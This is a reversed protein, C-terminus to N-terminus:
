EELNMRYNIKYIKTIHKINLKFGRVKEYKIM